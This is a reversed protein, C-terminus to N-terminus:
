SPPSRRRSPVLVRDEHDLGRNSTSSREFASELASMRERGMAVRSPTCLTAYGQMAVADHDSELAPAVERRVDRRAARHHRHRNQIKRLVQLFLWQRFQAEGQYAFQTADCLVEVCVSQALDSISEKARVAPGAQLRVFAVLSPLHQVLLSQLARGDGAAAQQLLAESDSTVNPDGAAPARGPPPRPTSRACAPSRPWTAARVIVRARSARASDPLLARAVGTRPAANTPISSM